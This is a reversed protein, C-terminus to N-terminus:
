QNKTMATVVLQVMSSCKEVANNRREFDIQQWDHQEIPPLLFFPHRVPCVRGHGKSLSMSMTSTLRNRDKGKNRVM